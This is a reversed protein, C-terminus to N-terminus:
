IHATFPITPVLIAWLSYTTSFHKSNAVFVVYLFSIAFTWFLTTWFDHSRDGTNDPPPVKQSPDNRHSGFLKWM